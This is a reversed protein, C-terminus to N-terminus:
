SRGIDDREAIATATAYHETHSLSVHLATVGLERARSEPFGSLVAEPAGNEDKVISIDKWSVPMAREVRIAKAIAEKAALRAAFHVHPRLKSSCYQIESETFWHNLFSLGGNDIMARIRETELIDTGVGIIM